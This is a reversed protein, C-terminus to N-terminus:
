FVFRVKAEEGAKVTVGRGQEGAETKVSVTHPGPTASIRVAPSDGVDRGDIRVHGWPTSWVSIWGNVAAPAASSTANSAGQATASAPAAGGTSTASASAAPMASGSTALGPTAFGPTAFGPTAFGPTVPGPTVPGPTVPGPTASGATASGPSAAGIGPIGGAPPVSGASAALPTGSTASSPDPPAAPTGGPVPAEDGRRRPAKGSLAAAASAAEGSPSPARVTRRALLVVFLLLVAGLVVLARAWWPSRAMPIEPMPEAAGPAERSLLARDAVQPALLNTPVGVMPEVTAPGNTPVGVMGEVVAPVNTPVGVMGEVVAPVNTPVGLMGEAVAPVNTPVGVMAGVAVPASRPLEVLAAARERLPAETPEDGTAPEVAVTERRPAVTVAESLERRPAVTAAESVEAAVPEAGGGGAGGSGRGSGAEIEAFLEHPKWPPPVRSGVLSAIEREDAAAIGAEDRAEVLARRFAEATNFRGGPSRSLACAVVAAVDAPVEPRVDRLDPIPEFLVATHTEAISARAFLRRGAFIEFAMVGLAFVDTRRDLRRGELQEPALYAPKGRVTDTRSADVSALRAIGFDVLRTRGDYGVVANQPSVDQHVLGLPRGAEDVLEHAAHLGRALDALVAVAIPLPLLAPSASVIQALSAGHLLEMAIFVDGGVEGADLWRVVNPHDLRALIRAERLFAAREEPHDARDAMLIKVAVLRAIGAAGRHVAAHVVGMAGRGIRRGLVYPGWTVVHAADARPPSAAAFRGPDGEM